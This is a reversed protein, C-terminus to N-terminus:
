DSLLNELETNSISETEYDGKIQINLEDLSRNGVLEISNIQPKNSLDNYNTTGGTGSGPVYDPINTTDASIHLNSSNLNTQNGNINTINSNITTTVNGSDDSKINLLDDKLTGTEKNISSVNFEDCIADITGATIIKINASSKPKTNNGRRPLAENSDNELIIQQGAADIISISEKGDKDDIMITSGKFSKYIIQKASDEELDTIRDNTDIDYNEGNYVNSNDNYQKTNGIMTPITGFYIPKTPSDLEFSMIVTSGKIPIIFQGMDNTGGNLIAPTAWPLFKTELYNNQQPNSGHIAPIRAKIRGLGKPDNTDEVIGFYFANYNINVQLKQKNKIIDSNLKSTNARTVNIDFM